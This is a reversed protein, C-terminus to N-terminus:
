IECNNLRHTGSGCCYCKKMKRNKHLVRRMQNIKNVVEMNIRNQTNGKINNNGLKFGVKRMVDM